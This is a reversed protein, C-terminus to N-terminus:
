VKRKNTLFEFLVIILLSAFYVASLRYGFITAKSIATLLLQGMLLIIGFLYSQKRLSIKGYVFTYGIALISLLILYYLNFTRGEVVFQLFEFVFSSILFVPIFAFIISSIQENHRYKRYLLNIIIFFTAVYVAYSNSPYALISFPDKIFKGINIVIKGIWIYIVFNITLSVVDELQKKKVDKTDISLFYYVGIGFVFSIVIVALDLLVALSPL